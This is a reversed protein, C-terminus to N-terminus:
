VLCLFSSSSGSHATHTHTQTDAKCTARWPVWPESASSSLGASDPLPPRASEATEAEKRQRYFLLKTQDLDILVLKVLWALHPRLHHQILPRDLVFGFMNVLQLM